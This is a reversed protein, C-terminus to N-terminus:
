QKVIRIVTDSDSTTLLYTGNELTNMDISVTETSFKITKVLKGALDSIFIEGQNNGLGKVTITGKTPNPFAVLSNSLDPDTIGACGDVAITWQADNTCGNGDTYSYTIVANGVGAVSPDFTTGTVGTGSYTGGTPTGAALTIANNYVCITSIDTYSVTPLANVNVTVQDTNECGNADTGTVTYTTTTSPASFSTNDTVNNDWIYTDAGSGALTVQSGECVTQDAGADVTPLNNITITTTTSSSACTNLTGVAYVTESGVATISPTYTTGTGVQTTLGADSYWTYTVILSTTSFGTEPFPIAATANTTENDLANIGSYTWESVNFVGMNPHSGSNRKVWGDLYDWATGTGDVNIDGFVDIVNSNMFLEIADNGNVNPASADSGNPYFGFFAMFNTSDSGIRFYDGANLSVAPFTYEIGDSGGGNNASGFGYISADAIDDIAYFEIMKPLGGPLPGDVIGTIIMSPVETVTITVDSPTDGDCLNQDGSTVPAAPTNTINLHLRLISDCTYMNPYTVDYTGSQTYTFTEFVYSDCADVFFEQLNIPNITLDIVLISDCGNTISSLTDNYIGSATWTYNGSPSTYSGCDTIALNTLFTPLVTLNLNIISDCGLSSAVTDAYNGTANYTSSGVTYSENDCITETLNTILTAVTSLTLHVTSDPCGEVTTFVETYTGATTLTQTGFTYSSGDCITVAANVDYTPNVTLDIFIISDCTASISSTLTDRYNGSTTYVNGSPSTYDGCSSPSINSFTTSCDTCTTSHIDMNSWDDSPLVTWEASAADIGFSGLENPNGGCIEPKRVLTHNATSNTGDVLWGSGPDAQLDGILDIIEYNAATAGAITLAMADDGNSLFSFTIDAVALISPDASPHAIIYIAGPALITGMAFTLNDPYDFEGFTTCGNNCTSLSFNGLDVSAGTGNYIELYKNNSSGEAYESFYLGINQGFSSFGLLLTILPLFKTIIKM